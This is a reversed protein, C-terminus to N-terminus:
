SPYTHPQTSPSHPHFTANAENAVDEYKQCGGGVPGGFHPSMAPSFHWIFDRTTQLNSTKAMLDLHDFPLQQESSLLKSAGAFNDSYVDHPTGRPNTFREFALLFSETSLDESLEIHIAHTAMCIFICIYSKVLTLKRPNGRKTTIPGTYDVGTAYFPPLQRTRVPPLDGMLQQSTRAASKL